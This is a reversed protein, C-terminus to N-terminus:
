KKLLPMVHKEMFREWSTYVLYCMSIDWVLTLFYYMYHLHLALIISM